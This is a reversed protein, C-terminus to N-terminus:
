EKQDGEGINGGGPEALLQATSEAGSEAAIAATAAAAVETRVMSDAVFLEMLTSQGLEFGRKRCIAARRENDTPYGVLQLALGLIPAQQQISGILDEMEKSCIIEPKRVFLQMNNLEAFSFRMENPLPELGKKKLEMDIADLKQNFAALQENVTQRVTHPAFVLFCSVCFGIVISKFSDFTLFVIDKRIEPSLLYFVNLVMKLALTVYLINSGFYGGFSLIARKWDGFLLDIVGLLLSLIKRLLDNKLLPFTGSVLVRIIELLSYAFLIIMRTPIPTPNILGIRPIRPIQMNKVLGQDSENLMKLLGYERAYKRSMQDVAGIKDMVMQVVDDPGSVPSGEPFRGGTQAVNKDFNQTIHAMNTFIRHAVPAYVPVESPSFLPNGAENQLNALWTTNGEAPQAAVWAEYIQSLRNVAAYLNNGTGPSNEAKEILGQLKDVTYVSM